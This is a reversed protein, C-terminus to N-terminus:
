SIFTFGGGVKKKEAIWGLMEQGDRKLSQYELSAELRRRREAGARRVAARRELVERRRQLFFLTNCISPGLM